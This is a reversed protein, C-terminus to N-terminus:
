TDTVIVITEPGFDMEEFLSHFMGQFADLYNLFFSKSVVIRGEWDLKLENKAKGIILDRLAKEKHLGKVFGTNHVICNRVLTFENLRQVDADLLTPLSFAKLFSNTKEIISGQSKSVSVSLNRRNKLEKCIGKLRYEVTTYLSSVLSYILIRPLVEDFEYCHEDIEQQITEQYTEWDDPQPKSKIAYLKLNSAEEFQAEVTKYFRNLQDFESITELRFWDILLKTM